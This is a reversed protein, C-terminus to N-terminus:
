RLTEPNGEIRVFNEPIYINTTALVTVTATPSQPVPWQLLFNRQQDSLLQGVATRSVGVIAGQADFAVGTVEVQQWDTGSINRIMGRQEEFQQNGISRPGRDTLFISFSPLRAGQPVPVFTPDPPLEVTVKAPTEKVDVDFVIVHRLTNPMLYTKTEERGIELGQANHMVFTVPLEAVGGLGNPNRIHAVLDVGTKGPVVDVREVVLPDYHPPPTPTPTAISPALLRKLGWGGLSIVVLFVLCGSAYSIRKIVHHLSM